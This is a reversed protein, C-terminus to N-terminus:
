GAPEAEAFSIGNSEANTLAYEGDYAYNAGCNHCIAFVHKPKLRLRAGPFKKRMAAVYASQLEDALKIAALGLITGCRECATKNETRYRRRDYIWSRVILLPLCFPLLLVALIALITFLLLKLNHRYSLRSLSDM